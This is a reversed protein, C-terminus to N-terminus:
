SLWSLRGLLRCSINLRAQIIQNPHCQPLRSSERHIQKGKEMLTQMCCYLTPCGSPLGPLLTGRPKDLINEQRHGLGSPKLPEKVNALQTPLSSKSLSGHQFGLFGSCAKHRPDLASLSLPARPQTKSLLCIRQYWLLGKPGKRTAAFFLVYHFAIPFTSHWM